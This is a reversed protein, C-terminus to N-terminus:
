AHGPKSLFNYVDGVTKLSEAQDDSIPKGFTKEVAIVFAVVDLSDAGLEAFSAERKILSKEIGLHKVVLDSVVNEIKQQEM